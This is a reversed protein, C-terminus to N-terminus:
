AEHGGVQQRSRETYSFVVFLKYVGKFANTLFIVVFLTGEIIKEVMSCFRFTFALGTGIDM